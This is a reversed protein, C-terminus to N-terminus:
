DVLVVHTYEHDFTLESSRDRGAHKFFNQASRLQDIFVKKRGASARRSVRVNGEFRATQSSAKSTRACCMGPYPRCHHGQARLVAPHRHATSAAAELKSVTEFQQQM